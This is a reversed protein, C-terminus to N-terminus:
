QSIELVKKFYLERKAALVSEEYKRSEQLNRTALFDYLEPNSLIEIIKDALATANNVPIVANSTLLEPIGGVNSGIIPLGKAMAEIMARPLGETRSVHIFLDANELCQEVRQSDVDGLFSIMENVNNKKAYEVMETLHKGGGLWIMLVPVGKQKLLALAEIVIDPAKYLQELSGVSLLKAPQNIPGQHPTRRIFENSIKVNSIGYTEVGKASPYRSQLKTQTVYLSVSSHKVVHQLQYFGIRKLIFSWRGGISEMVDWPDGVVEVAYPINKRRLSAALMEGIRGPVRCIYARGPLANQEIVNCVAWYKKLYEGPGVYYPIEIYSVNEGGAFYMGSCDQRSCVRAFVHVHSFVSLYRHWLCPGFVPSNSYYAGKSDRYFRHESAFVLEM